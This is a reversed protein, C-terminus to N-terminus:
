PPLPYLTSSYRTSHIRVVSDKNMIYSIRSIGKAQAVTVGAEADYGDLPRNAGRAEGVCALVPGGLEM